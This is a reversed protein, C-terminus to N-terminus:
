EFVGPDLWAAQFFLTGGGLPTYGVEYAKNAGEAKILTYGDIESGSNFWGEITLDGVLNGLPNPDAPEGAGVPFVIAADDATVGPASAPQDFGWTLHHGNGSSDWTGNGSFRWYAEPGRKLVETEYNGMSPGGGVLWDRQTFVVNGDPDAFFAGGEADAARQCEELTSQALGSPAMSHVGGQVRRRAPPFGYRNLAAHVRESTSMGAPLATALAPPNYQHLDGLADILTVQTVVAGTAANYFDNSSQVRGTFLSHSVDPDEPDPLARIRVMVGPRWTLDELGAGTPPTFHGDTNNL